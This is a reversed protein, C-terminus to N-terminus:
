NKIINNILGENTSMFWRKNDKKILDYYRFYLEAIICIYKGLKNENLSNYRDRSIFLRMFNQWKESITHFYNCKRGNSYKNKLKNDLNIYMIKLDYNDTKNNNEIIGVADAYLSNDLSYKELIKDNLRDYDLKLGNRLNLNEDDIIFLTYKNNFESKYPIIIGRILVNNYKKEIINSNLYEYILSVIYKYVSVNKVDENDEYDKFTNYIYNWLIIYSNKDLNDILINLVIKDLFNLLDEQLFNNNQAILTKNLNIVSALNKIAVPFFKTNIKEDNDIRKNIIYNHYRYINKLITEGDKLNNKVSTKRDKKIKDPIEYNVSDILNYSNNSRNYISTNKYNLNIPQYIYLEGINILSGLRDYKDRLTQLENNVLEDLANNIALLSFNDRINIYSILEEKSYFYSEKYLDKIINIIKNNTTELYRMNYTKLNDEEDEDEDKNPKCKYECSEMYDCLSSYSKDGIKYLITKNNSLNLELENNLLKSFKNEDFLTLDHNLQCDISVEKMIRTIIGIQKAKDESKRYILLDVTEITANSLIGAYMFIQVNRETLPLDKHSCTRVGRGIIQEIRNINYWPELIHIQRIYKFDLGESAASSILIVKINEGNINNSDNCSKLEEEKNPSLIKDGTIM